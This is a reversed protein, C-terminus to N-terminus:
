RFLWFVPVLPLAVFSRHIIRQSESSRPGIVLTWLQDSRREKLEDFKAIAKEERFFLM